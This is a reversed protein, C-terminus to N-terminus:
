FIHATWFEQGIMSVLELTTMWCEWSWHQWLICPEESWGRASFKPSVTCQLFPFVKLDILSLDLVDLPGDNSELRKKDMGVIVPLFKKGGYLSQSLVALPSISWLFFQFSLSLKLFRLHFKPRSPSFSIFLTFLSLSFYPSTSTLILFLIFLIFLSLPGLRCTCYKYYRIDVKNALHCDSGDNCMESGVGELPWRFPNAHMLIM